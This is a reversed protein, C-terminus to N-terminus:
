DFLEAIANDFLNKILLAMEYLLEAQKTTAKKDLVGALIEQFDYLIGDIERIILSRHNVELETHQNCLSIIQEAIYEELLVAITKGTKTENGTDSFLALNETLFQLLHDYGPKDTVM